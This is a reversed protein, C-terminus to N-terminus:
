CDIMSYRPHPLDFVFEDSLVFYKMEQMNLTRYFEEKNRGYNYFYPHFLPLQKSRKFIGYRSIFRLSGFFYPEMMCPLSPQLVSAFSEFYLDLDVIRHGYNVFLNRRQHYLFM